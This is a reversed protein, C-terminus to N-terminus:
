PGLSRASSLVRMSIIFLRDTSLHSAKITPARRLVEAAMWGHKWGTKADLLLTSSAKAQYLRTLIGDDAVQTYRFHLYSLLAEQNLDRDLFVRSISRDPAAEVYVRIFARIFDAFSNPRSDTAAAIAEEVASDGAVRLQARIWREYTGFESSSAGVGVPLIFTPLMSAILVVALM